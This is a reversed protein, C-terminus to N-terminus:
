QVCVLLPGVTCVSHLAICEFMYTNGCVIKRITRLYTLLDGHSIYEIVLAIPEQLTSCGVMNVVHPCGGMTIKKM